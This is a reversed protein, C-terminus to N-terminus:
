RAPRLPDLMEAVLRVVGPELARLPSRDGLRPHLGMGLALRAPRALCDWVAATGGFGAAALAAGDPAFAVSLVPGPRRM